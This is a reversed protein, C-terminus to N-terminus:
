EVILIGTMGRAHASCHYPYAGPQDFTLSYRDGKELAQSNQNPYYTHAPHSDTNVYHVVGDSNTWTVKTGRSLRMVEPAFSIDKMDITVESKGRMDVAQNALARDIAFQFHGEHCSGDPWCASYDVTYIGDPSQPNMVRRMALKNNDIQTEGTGYDKKDPDTITIASNEALDFNFDVAVNIPVGPLVTSHAPTSSEYHASKKAGQFELVTGSSTERTTPASPKKQSYFYYGIGAAALIVITIIIKKM